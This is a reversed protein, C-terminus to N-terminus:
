FSLVILLSFPSLLHYYLLQGVCYLSTQQVVDFLTLKYCYVKTRTLLITTTHPLSLNVAAPVRHGLSSSARPNNLDYFPSLGPRQELRPLIHLYCVCPWDLRDLDHVGFRRTALLYLITYQYQGNFINPEWNNLWQLSMIKNLANLRGIYNWKCSCSYM